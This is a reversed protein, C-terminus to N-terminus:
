GFCPFFDQRCVMRELRQPLFFNKARGVKRGCPAAGIGTRDQIVTCSPYETFVPVLLQLLRVETDAEEAAPFIIMLGM